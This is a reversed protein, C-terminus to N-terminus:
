RSEEPMTELKRALLKAAVSVIRIGHEDDAFALCVDAAERLAAARICQAFQQLHDACFFHIEGADAQYVNDQEIVVGKCDRAIEILETTNM